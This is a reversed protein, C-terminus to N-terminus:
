GEGIIRGRGGRRPRGRAALRQDAYSVIEAMQELPKELRPDQHSRVVIEKAFLMAMYRLKLAPRDVVARYDRHGVNIQWREDLMRSRWSASPQNVFEPEPIGEGSKGSTFEDLIEVPVESIATLGASQAVVTLTGDM